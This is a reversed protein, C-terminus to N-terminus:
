EGQRSLQFIRSQGLSGIAIGNVKDVVMELDSSFVRKAHPVSVFRVSTPLTSGTKLMLTTATFATKPVDPVRLDPLSCEFKQFHKGSFRNQDGPHPSGKGQKGVGVSFTLAECAPINL